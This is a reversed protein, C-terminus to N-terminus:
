TKDSNILQAVTTAHTLQPHHGAGDIVHIPIQKSSTPILSNEKGKLLPDNTGIILQAKGPYNKLADTLERRRKPSAAKRLLRATNSASAQRLDTASSELKKSLSEDGTLALALRAATARKLYFQTFPVLRQM